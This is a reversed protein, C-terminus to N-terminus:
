KACFTKGPNLATMRAAVEEAEEMAACRASAVKSLAGSKTKAFVGFPKAAESAERRNAAIEAFIGTMSKMM